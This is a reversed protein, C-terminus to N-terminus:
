KMAAAVSNMMSSLADEWKGNWCLRLWPGREVTIDKNAKQPPLQKMITAMKKALTDPIIAQMWPDEGTSSRFLCLCSMLANFASQHDEQSIAADAEQAAKLIADKILVESRRMTINVKMELNIMQSQYNPSRFSRCLGKFFKWLCFCFGLAAICKGLRMMPLRRAALAMRRLPVHHKLIQYETNMFAPLTYMSQVISYGGAVVIGHLALTFMGSVFSRSETYVQLLPAGLWPLLPWAIDRLRACDLLRTEQLELARADVDARVADVLTTGYKDNAKKLEEEHEVWFFCGSAQHAQRTVGELLIELLADQNRKELRTAETGLCERLKEIWVPGLTFREQLEIGASTALPRNQEIRAALKEIPMPLHLGVSVNAAFSMCIRSLEVDEFVERALSPSFEAKSVLDMHMRLQKAITSTRRPVTAPLLSMVKERLSSVAALYEPAFEDDSLQDLHEFRRIDYVATPILFEHHDFSKVLDARSADKGQLFGQLDADVASRDVPQQLVWVVPQHPPLFAEVDPLGADGLHQRLIRAVQQQESFFGFFQNSFVKVSNLLVASSFFLALSFLRAGHGSQYDESSWLGETDMWVVTSPSGEINVREACVDIGITNTKRGHGVGFIIQGPDQSFRSKDNLKLLRNLLFSKGGRYVGLLPVLYLPDPLNELYEIGNDTLSISGTDHDVHLLTVPCQVQELNAATATALAKPLGFCGHLLHVLRFLWLKASTSEGRVM